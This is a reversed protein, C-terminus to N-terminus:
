KKWVHVWKVHADASWGTLPPNSASGEPCGPWGSTCASTYFSLIPYFEQADPAPMPIQGVQTGDFYWTVHVGDFLVGYTHFASSLPQPAVYKLQTQVGPADHQTMFSTSGAGFIETVDVEPFQTNVAEPMLWWATLTKVTGSSKVRAEWYANAAHFLGHADFHADSYHHATGACAPYGELSQIHLTLGTSSTSLTSPLFATECADPTHYWYRNGWGAPMKTFSESYLLTYGEAAPDFARADSAHLALAAAPALLALLKRNM